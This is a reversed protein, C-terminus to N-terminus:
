GLNYVHHHGLLLYPHVFDSNKDARVHESRLSSHFKDDPVRISSQLHGTSLVVMRRIEGIKLDNAKVMNRLSLRLKLRKPVHLRPQHGFPIM